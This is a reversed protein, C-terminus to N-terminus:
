TPKNVLKKHLFKTAMGLKKTTVKFGDLLFIFADGITFENKLAIHFRKLHDLTTLYGKYRTTNYINRDHITQLWVQNNKDTIIRINEKKWGRHTGHYITTYEEKPEFLSIFPTFSGKANRLAVKNKSLKLQYGNTFDILTKQTLKECYETVHAVFDERLGDDNDLRTTVIYGVDKTSEIEADIVERLKQDFSAMGDCFVPIVRPSKLAYRDIKALYEAPTQTDFFLYWSFQQNTQNVVSPYCITEFLHFREAYWEDSLTSNNNKDKGFVDARLNFKTAIIYHFRM